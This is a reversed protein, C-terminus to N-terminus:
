YVILRTKLPIAKYILEAYKDPNRICGGSRLTRFDQKGVKGHLSTQSHYFTLWKVGRQTKKHKKLTFDMGAPSPSSAKGSSIGWNSAVTSKYQVNAVRWYGNVRKFLYLHQSYLNAWIMYNTSSSRGSTMAFYEAEKDSYLKTPAGKALNAKFKKLSLYNCYYLNGQYYFIYKGFKFSHCQVKTGKKFTRKKHASDHSKLKRTKKFTVTIYLQTVSADSVTASPDSEKDGVVATVYYSYKTESEDGTKDIYAMKNPNDYARSSTNVTAVHKGNRYVKYSSAGNVPDWELAVSKFASYAALGKVADVQLTVSVTKDITNETDGDKYTFFVKFDQTTGPQLNNIVTNKPETGTIAIPDYGEVQVSTVEIEEPWSWSITVSTSSSAVAEVTFDDATSDLLSNKAVGEENQLVSDAEPAPDVAEPAPDVNTVEPQETVVDGGQVDQDAPVSEDLVNVAPDAPPNEDAAAFVGVTMSSLALALSLFLALTRKMIANEEM